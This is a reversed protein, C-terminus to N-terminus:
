QSAAFDLVQDKGLDLKVMVCGYDFLKLMLKSGKRTFKHFHAALIPYRSAIM